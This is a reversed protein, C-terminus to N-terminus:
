QSARVILRYDRSTNPAITGVWVQYTGPQWDKDQLRVDKNSGADACRIGDPGSILLTTDGGGSDVRLTLKSFPQKLILTHDSNPDGFGLCKHGARDSNSVVAPLSTAGGTSGMMMGSRTKDDLTLTKFNAPQAITSLAISIGISSLFISYELIRRLM